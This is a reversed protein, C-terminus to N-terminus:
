LGTVPTPSPCRRGQAGHSTSVYASMRRRFKVDRSDSLATAEESSSRSCFYEFSKSSFIRNSCSSWSLAAKSSLICRRFSSSRPTDQTNGMETAKMPSLRRASACVSTETSWSFSSFATMAGGVSLGTDSLRLGSNLIDSTGIGGGSDKSCAGGGSSSLNDSRTLSVGRVGEASDSKSRSSILPCDARRLFAPNAEVGPLDFIGGEGEAEGERSGPMGWRRGRVVLTDAGLLGM